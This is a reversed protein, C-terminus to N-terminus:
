ITRQLLRLDEKYDRGGAFKELSRMLRREPLLQDIAKIMIRSRNRDLSSKIPSWLSPVMDETGTIDHKAAKKITTSNTYKKNSSEGRLYALDNNIFYDVPVVQRGRDM